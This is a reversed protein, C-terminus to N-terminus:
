LFKGKFFNFIRFLVMSIQERYKLSYNGMEYELAETFNPIINVRIHDRVQRYASLSDTNWVPVTNNWLITEFAFTHITAFASWLEVDNIYVKVLNSIQQGKPSLIAYYTIQMSIVLAIASLFSLMLKVFGFTNRNHFTKIKSRRKLFNKKPKLGGQNENDNLTLMNAQDAYVKEELLM